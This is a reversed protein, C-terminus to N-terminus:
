DSRLRKTGKLRRTKRGYKDESKWRGEAGEEKRELGM